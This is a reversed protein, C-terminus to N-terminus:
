QEESLSLLKDAALWEPDTHPLDGLADLAAQIRSVRKREEDSMGSRIYDNVLAKQAAYKEEYSAPVKGILSVLDPDPSQLNETSTARERNSKQFSKRDANM